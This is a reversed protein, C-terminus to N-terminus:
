ARGASPSLEVAAAKLLSLISTVLFPHYQALTTLLSVTANLTPEVGHDRLAANFAPALTLYAAITPACPHDPAIEDPCTELRNVSAGSM